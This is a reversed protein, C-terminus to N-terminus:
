GIPTTCELVWSMYTKPVFIRKPIPAPFFLGSVDVIGIHSKPFTSQVSMERARPMLLIIDAVYNCVEFLYLFLPSWWRGM